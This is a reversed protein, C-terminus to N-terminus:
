DIPPADWSLTGKEKQYGPNPCREDFEQWCEPLGRFWWDIGYETFFQDMAPSMDNADPIFSRAELLLYEQLEERSEALVPESFFSQTEQDYIFIPFDGNRCSVRYREEADYLKLLYAVHALRKTKYFDLFQPNKKWAARAWTNFGKMTGAAAAEALLENARQESDDASAQIEAPKQQRNPRITDLIKKM